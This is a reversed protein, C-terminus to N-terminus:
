KLRENSAGILYLILIFVQLYVTEFSCFFVGLLILLFRKYVSSCHTLEFILISMMIFAAFIGHESLIQWWTNHCQVYWTNNYLSSQYHRFSGLGNGIIPNNLFLHAANRWFNFRTAVTQLVNQLGIFPIVVSVFFSGYVFGSYVILDTKPIFKRINVILIAAITGLIITRSFAIAAGFAYVFSLVIRFYVNKVFYLTTAISLVCFLTAYNADEAFGAVRIGQGFLNHHEGSGTDLSMTRTASSIFEPFTNGSYVWVMSVWLVFGSFLIMKAVSVEDIYERYLWFVTFVLFNYINLIALNFILESLPSLGNFKWSINSFLMLLYFLLFRKELKGVKIVLNREILGLIILMIELALGIYRFDVGFFLLERNFTTLVFVFQFLNFLFLSLGNIKTQKLCTRYRM